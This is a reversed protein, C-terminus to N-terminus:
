LDVTAEGGKEVQAEFRPNRHLFSGRLKAYLSSRIKEDETDLFRQMMTITLTKQQSTLEDWSSPPGARLQRFCEGVKFESMKHSRSILDDPDVRRARARLAAMSMEAAAELLELSEDDVNIIRM